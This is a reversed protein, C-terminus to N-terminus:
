GNNLKKFRQAIKNILEKEEEKMLAKPRTNPSEKPPELTRRKRKPEIETEEKEKTGPKAPAISPQNEALIKLIEEKILEKLLNKKM